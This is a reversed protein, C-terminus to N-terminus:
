RRILQNSIWQKACRTIKRAQETLMSEPRPVNPYVFMSAHPLKTMEEGGDFAVKHYFYGDLPDLFYTVEEIRDKESNNREYTAVKLM